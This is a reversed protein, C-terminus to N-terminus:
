STDWPSLQLLLVSSDTENLTAYLPRTLNYSPLDRVGRSWREFYNSLPKISAPSSALTRLEPEGDADRVEEVSLIPLCPIPVFAAQGNLM